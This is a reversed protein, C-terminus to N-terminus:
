RAECLPLMSDYMQKAAADTPKDRLQMKFMEISFCREYGHSEIRGFLERLDIGGRPDDPLVRDDNCHAHEGPAPAMNNVHVHKIM